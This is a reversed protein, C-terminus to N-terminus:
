CLFLLGWHHAKEVASADGAHSIRVGRRATQSLPASKSIYDQQYDPNRRLFEWAMRERGAHHLNTYATPDRWDRPSRIPNPKQTM